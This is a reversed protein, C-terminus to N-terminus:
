LELNKQKQCKVILSGWEAIKYFEEETVDEPHLGHIPSNPRCVEYKDNLIDYIDLAYFNALLEISPSNHKQM